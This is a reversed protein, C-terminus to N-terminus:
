TVDRATCNAYHRYTDCMVNLMNSYTSLQQMYQAVLNFTCSTSYLIKVSNSYCGDYIRPKDIDIDSKLLESVKSIDGNQCALFLQTQCYECGSHFHGTPGAVGLKILYKRNDYFQIIILKLDSPIHKQLSKNITSLYKNILNNRM